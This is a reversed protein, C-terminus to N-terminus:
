NKSKVSAQDYIAILKNYYNQQSNKLAASKIANIKIKDKIEPHSILYNMVKLLEDIEGAKFLFGDSGNKIIEKLGGLDSAIVTKGMAMAEIVGYPANELWLSPAVVFEAGGIIEYLERGNKHSIFNIKNILNLKRALIELDPKIPGDGLIYLKLETNLNAYAKLLIDIGKEPALRGFYLIYKEAPAIVSTKNNEALANPLYIIKNKFGFEKYKNILFRSPSIFLDIKDYLGLFKHFYAELACVLSKLYSNKIAKDFVVRYYKNPRSREWIKGQAFLNYNPCILKYDHLTMVTPLQHKKLVAIISPSLQHYINHLHIIDPKFEVLLQELNSKAELNYFINFVAKIKDRLNSKVQYNVQQTFYKSWRSPRNSPHKMSFFAIEHGHDALIKATDFYTREAGGKLYHYKNILLIKM